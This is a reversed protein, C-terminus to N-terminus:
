LHSIASFLAYGTYNNMMFSIVLHIIKSSIKKTYKKINKNYNGDVQRIPNTQHSLVTHQTFDRSKVIQSLQPVISAKCTNRLYQDEKSDRTNARTAHASNATLQNGKPQNSYQQKNNIDCTGIM